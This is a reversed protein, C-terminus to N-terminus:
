FAAARDRIPVARGCRVCCLVWWRYGVIERRLYWSVSVGGSDCERGCGCGHAVLDVLSDVAFVAVAVELGLNEAGDLLAVAPAHDVFAVLSPLVTGAVRDDLGM